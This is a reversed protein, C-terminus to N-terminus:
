PNWFAHHLHGVGSRKSLFQAHSALHGDTPEQRVVGGATIALKRVGFLCQFRDAASRLGASDVADQGGM